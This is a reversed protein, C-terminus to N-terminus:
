KKEKHKPVHVKKPKPDFAELNAPEDLIPTTEQKDEYLKPYIKSRPPPM